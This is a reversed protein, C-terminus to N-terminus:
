GRTVAGRRARRDVRGRGDLRRRREDQGERQGAVPRVGLAGALNGRMADVHPALKPQQAIVVVDVNVVAIAPPRARHGGRPAATSATPTRGRRIPIRSLSPRHRRRRGRGSGCRDGRPLRRRCRLAGDLGKEFPITVGGLILPRGPVLRHLDYGNGIRLAPRRSRARAPARGDDLDDPTTIKLNRPDGDVLRVAHGAQEALTAEDTADGSVRLRTACCTSASRRRRRRWISESARCRRRSRGPRTPRSSRTTRACPPSRPARSRVGGAGHSSDSRRHRAAAGRRPDGRDRGARVRARLANAVSDQRQEGGDVVTVPKGRGSLYAPPAAALDPPLAVVIESILDCSVFADVSRALIPRGGLSLLQKPSDGGFRLGRGGAAIIASVFM